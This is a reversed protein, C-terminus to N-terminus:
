RGILRDKIRRVTQRLRATGSRPRYRGKSIHRIRRVGPVDVPTGQTGLLWRFTKDEYTKRWHTTTTQYAGLANCYGVARAVDGHVIQLPGTARTAVRPVYDSEIQVLQAPDDPPVLRPDDDSLMPTCQEQQPYVLAERRGQLRDALTDLAGEGFFLDCDTFWIWHATTALAAQNRGICRRMLAEPPLAQWNWRVGPVTQAAFAELVAVTATDQTAHFVTVTLDVERPPALVLSSLQFRLLHAYNWCHSVVELHLRGTAAHRAEPAPPRPAFWRAPLGLTPAFRYFHRALAASQSDRVYAVSPHSAQM